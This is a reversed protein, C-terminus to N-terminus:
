TYKLLFVGQTDVRVTGESGIWKIITAGEPEELRPSRPTRLGYKTRTKGAGTGESSFNHDGRHKYYSFMINEFRKGEEETNRLNMRFQLFIYNTMNEEPRPKEFGRTNRFM